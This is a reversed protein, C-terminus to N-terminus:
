SLKTRANTLVDQAYQSLIERFDELSINESDVGAQNALSKLEEVVLREPLGTYLSLKRILELGKEM